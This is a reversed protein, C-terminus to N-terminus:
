SLLWSCILFGIFSIYVYLSGDLGDNTTFFISYAGSGGSFEAIKQNDASSGVVNLQATPTTTGIGVKGTNAVIMETSSTNLAFRIGGGASPASLVTAGDSADRWLANNPDSASGSTGSFIFKSGTPIFVNGNVDLKEFPATTGIGVNGPGTVTVRATTGSQIEFLKSTSNSLANSTNFVFASAATSDVSRINTFVAPQDSDGSPFFRMTAFDRFEYNGNGASFSGGVFELGGSLRVSGPFIVRGASINLDPATGIPATFYFRANASNTSDRLILADTSGPTTNIQLLATPSTTGIGVNGNGLITMKTTPANDSTGTAAAASTKFDIESSGTGTSTGGSLILSGGSKDTAALTSGSAQITLNNGATNATTNRIMGLTQSSTGPLTVSTTCTWGSVAYWILFEGASCTKMALVGSFREIIGDGSSPIAILGDLKTKDTSSLSGANSTTAASIAFVGTGSNYTLPATASLDTLAIGSSSAAGAIWKNLGAATSYVLVQGNTPPTSLDIDALDNISSGTM